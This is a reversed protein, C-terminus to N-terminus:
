NIPRYREPISFPFSIDRELEIRGIRIDAIFPINHSVFYILIEEPLFNEEYNGYSQFDISGYVNNSGSYEIKRTRFGRDVTIRYREKELFWYRPKENYGGVLDLKLKGDDFEYEYGDSFSYGSNEIFPLTSGTFASQVIRYEPLFPYHRRAEEYSGKFYRNNIRDVIKVSDQTLLIRAAEIGAFASVSVMLASDKRMRINGRINFEDSGDTVKASIRGASYYKFGPENSRINEYVQKGSFIIEEEVVPRIARCGSFLIAVIIIAVSVRLIRDISPKRVKFM